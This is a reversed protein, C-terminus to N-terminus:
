CPKSENCQLLEYMNAVSVHSAKMLVANAAGAAKVSQQLECM